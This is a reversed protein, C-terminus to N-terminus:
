YAVVIKHKGAVSLPISDVRELPMGAMGEDILALRRRVEAAAAGPLETEAAYRIRPWAGDAAVVQFSDIGSLDRVCHTFAESHVTAGNPLIVFDNCRGIVRRLQLISGEPNEQPRADALDGLAYRLLPMARPYLSTALVENAAPGDGGRRSLRHRAYFVSYEGHANQYALPGTEVAGYEMIVPAGFTKGIIDKSDGRPFSEATAIVAKLALKAVEGARNENHRAFRDLASSYGIVYTPKRALLLDLARDLDAPALAYASVRTYGLMRDFVNRKVRSIAGMVGSGLLHAHGWLLFVPDAPSIGLRERGLWIDLGTSTAEDPWVPFRFPEGTSGGTTRWIVQERPPPVGELARKLRQKDLVPTRADYEAWSEFREPLNEAERIARAWPSRTLSAKWAANLDDLQRAATEADDAPTAYRARYASLKPALKRMRFKAVLTM